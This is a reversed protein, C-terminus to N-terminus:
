LKDLWEAGKFYVEDYRPPTPKQPDALNAMKAQHRLNIFVLEDSPGEAKICVGNKVMAVFLSRHGHVHYHNMGVISWEDLPPKDWPLYYEFKKM